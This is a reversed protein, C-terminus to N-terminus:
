SFLLSLSRVLPRAHSKCPPSCGSFGHRLVVWSFFPADSILGLSSFFLFTSLIPSVDGMRSTYITVTLHVWVVVVFYVTADRVIRGFLGSTKFVQASKHSYVAIMLFAIIDTFSERTEDHDVM